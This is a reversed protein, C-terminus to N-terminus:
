SCARRRRYVLGASLASLSWLALSAPEPVPANPAQDSPGDFTGVKAGVQLDLEVLDPDGLAALSVTVMFSTGYTAAFPGGSVPALAADLVDVEGFFPPFLDESFLDIIFDIGTPLNTQLPDLLALASPMDAQVNAGGFFDIAIYGVLPPDPSLLDSPAAVSSAFNITFKLDTGILEVSLDEIEILGTADNDDDDIFPTVIAARAPVMTALLLSAAILMRWFQSIHQKIEPKM